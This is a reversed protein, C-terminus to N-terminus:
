RPPPSRPQSAPPQRPSADLLRGVPPRPQQLHKVAGAWPTEPTAVFIEGPTQSRPSRPPPPQTANRQHAFPQDRTATTASPPSPAAYFNADVTFTNADEQRQEGKGPYTRALPDFIIARRALYQLNSLRDAATAQNRTDRAIDQPLNALFATVVYHEGLQPESRLRTCPDRYADCAETIQM